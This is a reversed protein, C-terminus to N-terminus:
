AGAGAKRRRAAFVAGAGLVVAAGAAAGIGPLADGAGTAALQGGTLPVSSSGGQGTHDVPAPTGTSPKAEPAPKGAPKARVVDFYADEDETYGCGGDVVDYEGAASLVGVGAPAGKAVTLRLKADAKGGKSLAGLEVADLGLAPLKTWKPHATSSWEVTTHRVIKEVDDEELEELDKASNPLIGSFVYAHVAELDKKATNEVTLSFVASTGATVSRPGTLSVALGGDECEEWSGEEEEYKKLAAEAAALAKEAKAIDDALLSAKRALAVRADHWADVAKDRREAAATRAAVAEQAKTGAAAVLAAALEKAEPTAEPDAEVLALADQAAKLADATDTVATEAEALAKKAAAEEEVVDKGINDNKLDELVQERQERLSKLKKEAREVAAVLRGHAPDDQEASSGAAPKQTEAFAPAASLFVVPTTVAAAVATALIRRIKM